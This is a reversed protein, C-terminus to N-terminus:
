NQVALLTIGPASSQWSSGRQQLLEGDSALVRLGELDNGGAMSVAAAPAGLNSSRAGLRQAVARTEGTSLETVAAVSFQDVWTADLPTGVGSTLEVPQGLREPVGDQNRIVAAVVLKPVGDISLFAVARTGDRSIELSTIGSAGDWTSPIGLATGDPAYASVAAPNSSPTSWVFGWPDIAPAILGSRQDLLVTATSGSGSASGPSGPARVAHVTGDAARVAASEATASYAVATPSLAEVADSIGPIVTVGSSTLYGLSGDRLVLPRADVRPDADPPPVDSGPIPVINQDVSIAVSSTSALDRLSENLQFRMRQLDTADAQLINSSLEVQTQGGTTVVAPTTTGDPFATVVAGDGLWASPGVLLAKVVRTGVATSTPFWRLDPVLYTFTPDYFYLAHASFVQDFFLDEIVIGDDLQNIRWEGDVQTFGFGLTLPANTTSQAYSGNADVSAVQTVNMQLTSDNQASTPRTGTDVTTKANPRWSAAADPALYRRAIAYDDQPSKAAQIFGNLIQQQSAGKTPDAALFIVDIDDDTGIADGPQVPGSRPIGSCATLAVLMLVGLLAAIARGSRRRM